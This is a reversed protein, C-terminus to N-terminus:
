GLMFENDQINAKLCSWYHYLKQQSPKQLVMKLPSKLHLLYKSLTLFKCWEFLWSSKLLALPYNWPLSPYLTTSHSPWFLKWPFSFFAIKCYFFALILFVKGLILLDIGLLFFYISYTYPYSCELKLHSCSNISHTGQHVIIIFPIGLFYMLITSINWSTFVFVLVHPPAISFKGIVM